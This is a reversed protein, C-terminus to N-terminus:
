RQAERNQEGSEAVYIGCSTSVSCRIKTQIQKIGTLGPSVLELVLRGM